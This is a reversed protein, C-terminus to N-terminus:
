SKLGAEGAPVHALGIMPSMVDGGMRGDMGYHRCVQKRGPWTAKGPSHKRRPLGEHEQLKYACHLAPLDFSTALSTGIGFGNIPAASRCFAVLEDEDLGGSAFIDVRSLGSM